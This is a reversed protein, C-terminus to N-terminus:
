RSLSYNWGPQMLESFHTHFLLSPVRDNVQLLNDIDITRNPGASAIAGCLRDVVELLHPFENRINRPSFAPAVGKRLVKWYGDHTFHGLLNPHHGDPSTLQVLSCSCHPSPQCAHASCISLCKKSTGFQFRHVDREGAACFNSNTSATWSTYRLVCPLFGRSPLAAFALGV